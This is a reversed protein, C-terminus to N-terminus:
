RRRGLEPASAFRLSIQPCDYPLGRCRPLRSRPTRCRSTRHVSAHVPAASWRRRRHRAGLAFLLQWPVQVSSAAAVHSPVQGRCRCPCRSPSPRRLPWHAPEQSPLQAPLQSSSPKGALHLLPLQEPLHSTAAPAIHLPPLAGLQEPVHMPLHSALQVPLIVGGEGDALQSAVASQWAWALACALALM